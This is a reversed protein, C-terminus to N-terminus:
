YSLHFYCSYQLINTYNKTKISKYSKFNRYDIRQEYFAYDIQRALFMGDLGLAMVVMSSAYRDFGALYLAEETPMSFLFMAYIGIYYIITSINILSLQWLISNKKGIVFRIIIYAGLMIVQVLLLGFVIEISKYEGYIPTTFAQKGLAFITKM